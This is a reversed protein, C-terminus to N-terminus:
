SKALSSLNFCMSPQFSFASLQIYNSNASNTASIDADYNGVEVGVSLQKNLQKILNIAYHNRDSDANVGNFDEVEAHGYYISSRWDESWFHRYALTYAQTTLLDGSGDTNVKDSPNHGPSIYRGGAGANYAFRFDDKGFTYVKGSVSYALQTGDANGAVGNNDFTRALVAVAVQGFDGKYTYRAVADPLSQNADTANAPNELALELGGNTYRIQTQRIFVQGVHACGFDLADAISVLPMFTSWTQGVKWNKYSIFAHRMRPTYSNSVLANGGGGYFDYELFGTVAGHTFKVNFRSEKAQLSTQNTDPASTSTGIWYDRYAQDGNVNRLDVKFYGGFTLASNEDIQVEYGAYSSASFLAAVVSATKTTRNM